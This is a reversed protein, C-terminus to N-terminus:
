ENSEVDVNVLLLAGSSGLSDLGDRATNSSLDVLIDGSGVSVRRSWLSETLSLLTMSWATCGGLLKILNMQSPIKNHTKPLLQPPKM